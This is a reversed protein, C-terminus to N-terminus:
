NLRGGTPTNIPKTAVLPDNNTITAGKNKAESVSSARENELGATKSKPLFKGGDRKRFYVKRTWYHHCAVGGKWLWISYTSKGKPAFKGNVGQKGMQIIDEKRYVVGNKSQDVMRSCFDRSNGSTRKPAYSYRVKFLGADQQSKDQPEAYEKYFNYRKDDEDYDTVPVEEMLQWEQEDVVEGVGKLHELWESADDETFEQKSAQVPVCNPVKKGDKIKFGVMEYGEWCPEKLDIDHTECPMYWVQGDLEHTHYGECGLEKAVIIAEEKTDYAARGDIQKSALHVLDSDPKCGCGQKSLTVGTEKERTEDDVAKGSLDTFELPQLTKFYLELAYGNYALIEDIANLIIRQFPRIVINDFLTSATKIEDANNGLGTQDKIGLLMPSTIRHSVMVKKMCEASLFEYQSSAESLQVPEITAGSDKNDNFALIFRGSNSSGTFKRTIDHEIMDQEEEPPVGNHFNILMSPALGNKINNLHYNAVEQELEAYQLGGQYDVPSFYYQGTSYPKICYISETAKADYGYAAIREPIFGEQKYKMWDASYYYAEVEGKDNAKEPRLTQVPFHMAKAYRKGDKSKVMQFTAQGLMKLDLAIKRICDDNFVKKLELYGQLNRDASVTELGEGYILDAIGKVAANNTPSGHYLDILYQYYNNDVGYKVYEDQKDEVIKPSTYSNLQLFRM